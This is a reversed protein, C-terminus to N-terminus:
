SQPARAQAYLVRHVRDPRDTPLPVVAADGAWAAITAADLEPPLPTLEGHSARKLLDAWSGLRAALGSQLALKRLRNVWRRRGGTEPLGGFLEVQRYGAAQMAQVLAPAPPYHTTLPGPVFHPWDPNSLCVLLEGGPTLVRRSERWFAAQDPLYYIAEFSIVLDFSATAFPLRQADGQVLAPADQARGRYHSQALALVPATYDLGVVARASRALHGLGSGAGCAVELVRRNGALDAARGYRQAKRTRQDPSLLTGPTETIATFDQSM